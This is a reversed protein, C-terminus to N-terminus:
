FIIRQVNWANGEILYKVIIQIPVDVMKIQIYAKMVNQASNAPQTVNPVIIKELNVSIQVQADAKTM